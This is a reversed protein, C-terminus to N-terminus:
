SSALFPLHGHQRSDLLNAISNTAFTLIVSAIKQASADELEAHHNANISQSIANLLSETCSATVATTRERTVTGIPTSLVTVQIQVQLWHLQNLASRNSAEQFHLSLPQATQTSLAGDELTRSNSPRANDTMAINPLAIVTRNATATMPFTAKHSTSQAHPCANELQDQM